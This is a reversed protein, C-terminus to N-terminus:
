FWHQSKTYTVFQSSACSVQEMNRTQVTFPYFSFLTSLLTPHVPHAKLCKKKKKKLFLSSIGLSASRGQQQHLPMLQLGLLLFSRTIGPMHECGHQAAQPLSTTIDQLHSHFSSSPVFCLNM